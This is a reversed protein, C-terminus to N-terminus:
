FSRGFRQRMRSAVADSRINGFIRLSQLGTLRPSDIIAEIGEPAIECSELILTQLQQMHPSDALARAGATGVSNGSLALTQLSGLRASSALLRIAQSSLGCQTLWLSRLGPFHPSDLLIALSEYTLVSSGLRLTHLYRFAPQSALQRAQDLTALKVGLGIIPARALMEAGGAALAPAAVIFSEIFGGRPEYWQIGPGIEQTWRARHESLLERERHRLAATWAPDDSGRALACQVRIFEGQPDGHEELWDAYILRPLEEDPRQVIQRIFALQESTMLILLAVSQIPIKQGGGPPPIAAATRM